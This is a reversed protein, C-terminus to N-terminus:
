VEPIFGAWKVFATREPVVLVGDNRGYRHIFLCKFVSGEECIHANDEIFQRDALMDCCFNEYDIAGLAIEKVIEYSHEDELLHAVTLEEATRPNRIFYATGKKM